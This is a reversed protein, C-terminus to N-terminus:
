LEAGRVYAIGINQNYPWKSLTDDGAIQGPLTKDIKYANILDNLEIQATKKLELWFKALSTSDSFEVTMNDSTVKKVPSYGAAGTVGLIKKNYYRISYIAKLIGAINQSISPTVSQDDHVVYSENTLINLNGINAKLYATIATISTDSPQELDDFIETALQLISDYLPM